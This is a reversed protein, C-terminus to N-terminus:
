HNVKCFGSPKEKAQKRYQINVEYAISAHGPIGNTGRCFIKGKASKKRSKALGAVVPALDYGGDTCGEHMCKMHFGAYNAPLFCLTRKMLVPHLGRQYYTMHFEISSVGSYRESVLGTAVLAARETELKEKYSQRYRM